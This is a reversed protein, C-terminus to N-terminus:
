KMQKRKLGVGPWIPDDDSVKVGRSKDVASMIALVQKKVKPGAQNYNKAGSTAAVIADTSIAVNAYKRERKNWGEPSFAWALYEKAEAWIRTQLMFIVYDVIAASVSLDSHLGRIATNKDYLALTECQNMSLSGINCHALEELSVPIKGLVSILTHMPGKYNLLLLPFHYSGTISKYLAAVSHLDGEGLKPLKTVPYPLPDEETGQLINMIDGVVEPSPDLPLLRKTDPSYGIEKFIHQLQSDDELAFSHKDGIFTLAREVLSGEYPLDEPVNCGEVERRSVVFSYPAMCKVLIAEDRVTPRGDEFLDLLALVSGDRTVTLTGKEGDLLNRSVLYLTKKNCEIPVFHSM